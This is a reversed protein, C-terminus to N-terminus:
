DRLCRVSFGLDKDNVDEYVNALGSAMYRHYAYSSGYETATWWFGDTGLIYFSDGSNRVGGPLASFGYADEGDWNPSKSKLKTGAINEGGAFNVLEAWEERVPLHWGAPCAKM